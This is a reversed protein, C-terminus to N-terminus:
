KTDDEVRESLIAFIDRIGAELDLRLSHFMGMGALNLLVLLLIPGLIMGLVGGLKM